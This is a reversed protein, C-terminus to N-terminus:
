LRNSLTEDIRRAIKKGAKGDGYLDSPKCLRYRVNFQIAEVIESKHFPVGICNNDRERGHQRDGVNVSPTGLFSAERIGASSNGVICSALWLLGGFDEPPIHRIYRTQTKKDKRAVQRERWMKAINDGVPDINNWFIVEQMGLHNLADRLHFMETSFTPDTTDSHLM